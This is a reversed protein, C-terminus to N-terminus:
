LLTWVETEWGCGGPIGVYCEEEESQVKVCAPEEDESMWRRIRQLGVESESKLM